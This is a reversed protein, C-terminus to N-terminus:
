YLFIFRINSNLTFNVTLTRPSRFKPDLSTTREPPYAGASPHKLGQDVFCTGKKGANQDTYYNASTEM